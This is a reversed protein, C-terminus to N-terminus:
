PINGPEGDLLFRPSAHLLSLAGLLARSPCVGERTGQTDELVQGVRETQGKAPM